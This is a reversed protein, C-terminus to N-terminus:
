IGNVREVTECTGERKKVVEAVMRTQIRMVEIRSLPTLIGVWTQEGLVTSM